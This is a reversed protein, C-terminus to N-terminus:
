QLCTERFHIFYPMAELLWDEKMVLDWKYKIVEEHFNCPSCPEGQDLIISGNDKMM